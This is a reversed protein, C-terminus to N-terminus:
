AATKLPVAGEGDHELLAEYDEYTLFFFGGIGHAIGGWGEGWTQEGVVWWDAKDHGPLKMHLADQTCWAHGGAEGSSWDVELVGDPRTDMMSNLWITGNVVPGIYRAAEIADNLVTGSGAGCWRYSGIYGHEKAWKMVGLVSSGPYDEGPWQDRTRAGHYFRFGDDNVLRQQFPTARLATVTSFGTCGSSENEDSGDPVLGQDLARRYHHDRRRRVVLERMEDLFDRVKHERSRVDFEPVRGLRIDETTHGGKLQITM